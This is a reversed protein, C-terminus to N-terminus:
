SLALTTEISMARAMQVLPVELNESYVEVAIISKRIGKQFRNEREKLFASRVRATFSEQYRDCSM